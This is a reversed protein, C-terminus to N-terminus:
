VTIANYHIREKSIAAVFALRGLVLQHRESM